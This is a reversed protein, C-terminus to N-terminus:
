PLFLLLLPIELLQLLFPKEGSTCKNYKTLAFIYAVLCLIHTHTHTHTHPHTHTHTHTHTQTHTHTPPHPTLLTIIHIFTHRQRTPPTQTPTHTYYKRSVM